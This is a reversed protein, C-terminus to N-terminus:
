AGFARWLTARIQEDKWNKWSAIFEEAARLRRSQPWHPDYVVRPALMTQLAQAAHLRVFSDEDELAQLAIPVGRKDALDRVLRLAARRTLNFPHNALDVLYPLSQERARRLYNEARVRNRTRWRTLERAYFSLPEELSVEDAYEPLEIEWGQTLQELDQLLQEREADGPQALLVRELFEELPLKSLERRSPARKAPERPATDKAARAAPIERLATEVTIEEIRARPIELTGYPEIAFVVIGDEESVLNARFTSGNTLLVAHTTTLTTGEGQRSQAFVEGSGSPWAWFSLAWLLLVFTTTKKGRLRDIRRILSISM